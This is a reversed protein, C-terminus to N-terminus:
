QTHMTILRGATLQDGAALAYRIANDPQEREEYWAAARRRVRAEEGPERRRLESQLMESFLRHYRYWEGQDDEPIIFLNQGQVENLWAASGTTDLVADCLSGCIRELVSTRLLFRVTQASQRTLVEELFYAVIYRSSGTIEGAAEAPDPHGAISLGALYVGAPWGETHAVIKRVEAAPLDVGLKGLLEATEDPGFALDAPGLELLRGESRLRGLRLRPRWQGVGAIVWGAPLAAALDAVVQLAASSRVIHLDDLVVVRPQTAALATVLEDLAETAHGAKALSLVSSLQDPDGDAAATAINRVMTAADIDTDDLQVWGM